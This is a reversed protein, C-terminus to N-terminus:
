TTLCMGVYIKIPNTRYKVSNTDLDDNKDNFMKHAIFDFKVHLNARLCCTVVKLKVNNLPKKDFAILRLPENQLCWVGVCVCM